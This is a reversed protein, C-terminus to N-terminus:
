TDHTAKKRRHSYKPQWFNGSSTGGETDQLNSKQLPLMINIKKRRIFYVIIMLLPLILVVPITVFPFFKDSSVFESTSTKQMVPLLCILYSVLTFPIVFNKHSKAKVIGAFVHSAMYNYMALKMIAMPILALVFLVQVRNFFGFAEIQRAFVFYPSWLHRAYEGGLVLITPLLILLSCITFVSLSVWYTKLVSAKKGIYFSFVFFILIESFRAATLFAGLNLQIFTSDALVPMIEKPDMKNFSFLFFFLIALITLIVFFTAGRGITGVGKYSMYILPVALFFYIAWFPTAAQLFVKIFQGMIMMCATLCFLFFLLYIAAAAKGLPKGLIMEITQLASCGRFKNILFLIPANILTIYVVSMLLVIWVDQNAPPTVLIPMFTYPFIIASGVTMFVLQPTTVLPKKRM